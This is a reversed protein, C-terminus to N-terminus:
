RDVTLTIEHMTRTDEKRDVALKFRQIPVFMSGNKKLGDHFGRPNQHNRARTLVGMLRIDEFWCEQLTLQHGCM